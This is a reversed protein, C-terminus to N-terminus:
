ESRGGMTPNQAFLVRNKEYANVGFMIEDYDSRPIMKYKTKTKTHKLRRYKEEYYSHMILLTGICMLLILFSKM